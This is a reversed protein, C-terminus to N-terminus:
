IEEAAEISLKASIEIGGPEPMADMPVSGLRSDLHVKLTQAFLIYPDRGRFEMDM